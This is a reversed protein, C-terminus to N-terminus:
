IQACISDAYTDAYEHRHLWDSSDRWNEAGDGQARRYMVYTVTRQDTEDNDGRPMVTKACDNFDHTLINPVYMARPMWMQYQPRGLPGCNLDLFGRGIVEVVLHGNWGGPRVPFGPPRKNLLGVGWATDPRPDPQGDEIWQAMDANMAYAEVSMPRADIGLARCCAVGVATALICYSTRHLEDQKDAQKDALVSAGYHAVADLTRPIHRPKIRRIKM